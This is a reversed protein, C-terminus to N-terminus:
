FMKAFGVFLNTKNYTYLPINSDSRTHTIGVTPTGMPTEVNRLTFGVSVFTLDDKREVGFVPNTGDGRLDGVGLGFTADIGENLPTTYYVALKREQETRWSPDKETLAMSASVRVAKRIAINHNWYIEGRARQGSDLRYRESSHGVFGNFGIASREGVDAIGATQIGYTESSLGDGTFDWEWRAAPGISFSWGQGVWNADVGVSARLRSDEEDNLALVGLGAYPTVALSPSLGIRYGVRAGLEVGYREQARADDSLRYPLGGIYIVDDSTANNYNPDAIIRMDFVREWGSSRQACLHASAQAVAQAVDATPSAKRAKDWDRKAAGCRGMEAQLVGREFLLGANAPDKTLADEVLALASHTDGQVRATRAADVTSQAFVGGSLTAFLLALLTTRTRTM